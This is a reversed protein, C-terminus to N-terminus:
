ASRPRPWNQFCHNAFFFFPAPPLPSATTNRSECHPHKAHSDLRVAQARHAVAIKPLSANKMYIVFFRSLDMLTVEKEVQPAEASTLAMPPYNWESPDPILDKNWFVFFDDGDLDGGSCMSPIDRDGKRPFVVVDRLNRLQPADVAEVVRIDGPHLSPNRGVLCLGTIVKYKGMPDQRDPIQLFIQPLLNRDRRKYVNTETEMSHGRLTDTEDVCGLVFAGDEVPIRAKEKLGKMSWSRWLQLLTWMFPENSAMFGCHVMKAMAVTTENEDIRKMLQVMAQQPDRVANEICEIENDLLEQFVENRVGLCSLITISQQNLTPTYTKSCRIIELGNSIAGTFKEQSPRIHIEGRTADSSVALVGKCGGMRFQFASPVVDLRLHNSIMSAWFESMRGVGDTFCYGNRNVDDIRVVHPTTVGLILRTTSFCQGLRAAYKAVNKIASFDGMWNRIDDCSLHDTPAFFYAGNERFQSNGFALLQYHLDGIRIGNVLARYVRTYLEDNKKADVSPNIRGEPLEDTFQVRLFRDKSDAYKRLVRNNTEVTPTNVHMTTPTVIVKRVLTVYDYRAVIDRTSLGYDNRQQILVPDSFVAMPQYIRSGADAVAELLELADDEPMSALRQIFEVDVNHENFIGRSLCVELQYRVPFPLAPHELQTLSHPDSSPPDLIDWLRSPVRDVLQFDRDQKTKINFDSLHDEASLWAPSTQEDFELRYTTWNGIDIYQPPKKLSVTEKRMPLPDHMINIQRHWLEHESWTVRDPSHTSSPDATKRFVPPPFRLSIIVATRGSPLAQRIQRSMCSFSIEMKYDCIRTSSGPAAIDQLELPFFIHFRKKRFDIVAKFNDLLRPFRVSRMNMMTHEKFMFGFQLSALKIEMRAPVPKGLPSLLQEVRSFGAPDIEVRVQVPNENPMSIRMTGRDWYNRRPPEIRVRATSSRNGMRDEFLDISLVKVLRELSEWIHWTTARDPVDRLRLAM